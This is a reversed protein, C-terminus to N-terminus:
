TAAEFIRRMWHSFFIPSNSIVNSSAIPSLSPCTQRIRQWPPLSLNQNRLSARNEPVPHCPTRVRSRVFRTNCPTPFPNSVRCRTSASPSVPIVKDNAANISIASSPASALFWFFFLRLIGKQLCHVKRKSSSNFPVSYSPSDGVWRLNPRIRAFSRVQATLIRNRRAVAM